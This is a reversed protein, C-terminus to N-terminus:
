SSCLIFLIVSVQATQHPNMRRGEIIRASSKAIFDIAKGVKLFKIIWHILSELFPFSVASGFSYLHLNMLHYITFSIISHGQVYFLLQYVDMAM